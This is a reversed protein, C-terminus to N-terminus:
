AHPGGQRLPGTGVAPAAGDKAKGSTGAFDLVIDKIHYRSKYGMKKTIKAIDAVCMYKLFSLYMPPVNLVQTMWLVQALPYAGFHPLPIIPRGALSLVTRLPLVGNSAVNYVGNYDDDVCRKFVEVAEDEHLLQFLPDFGMMMPVAPLNIFKSVYNNHRRGLIHATRLITVVSNPNETRYRRALREAELKDAFFRSGKIGRLEHDENLFNSNLPSAGYLATLSWTIVKRVKCASCANLVHMTGIAELEHAWTKNHTPKSLFALHVLTDVKERMIVHAVAEDANPLTLDVKHFQTKILPIEPKRIDIALIKVYRRDQELLRILETGLFSQAGTVAVVRHEPDFPTHLVLSSSRRKRSSSQAKKKRPSM